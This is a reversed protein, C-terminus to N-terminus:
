SWQNEWGHPLLTGGDSLYLAAEETVSPDGKPIVSPTHRVGPLQVSIAVQTQSAQLSDVLYPNHTM